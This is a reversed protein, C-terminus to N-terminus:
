NSVYKGDGRIGSNTKMIKLSALIAIAILNIMLYTIGFIRLGISEYLNGTILNLVSPLMTISLYGLLM